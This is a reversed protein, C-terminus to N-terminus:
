KKLKDIVPKYRKGTDEINERFVDSVIVMANRNLSSVLVLDGKKIDLHRLAKPIHWYYEKSGIHYVGDIVKAHCGKITNLSEDM